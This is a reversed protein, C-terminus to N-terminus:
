VMSRRRNTDVTPKCSSKACSCLFVCFASFMDSTRIGSGSATVYRVPTGASAYMVVPLFMDAHFVAKSGICVPAFGYLFYKRDGLGVLALM